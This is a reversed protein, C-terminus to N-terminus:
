SLFTDKEQNFVQENIFTIGCFFAWRPVDEGGVM